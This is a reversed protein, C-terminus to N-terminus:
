GHGDGGEQNSSVSSGSGILRDFETPEPENWEPPLPLGEFWWFYSGRDRFSYFREDRSLSSTFNVLPKEGGIHAGAEITKAMLETAILPRGEARLASYAVDAQSKRRGSGADTIPKRKPEDVGNIRVNGRRAVIREGGMAEVADDLAQFNRYAETRQLDTLAEDRLAKTKELVSDSMVASRQNSAYCLELNACSQWLLM